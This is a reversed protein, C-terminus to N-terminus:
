SQADVDRVVAVSCVARHLLANSVSGLVLGAYEGHGRSGVVVLQARAAWVLLSVAPSERTIVREIAVDPYKQSWGALRESVQEAEDAEIAPGDLLVGVM